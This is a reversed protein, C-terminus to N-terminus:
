ETCGPVEAWFNYRRDHGRDALFARLEYTEGVQLGHADLDLIHTRQYGNYSSFHGDFGGSDIVLQGDLFVWLDDGSGFRLVQGPGHTFTAVTEITKSGLREHRGPGFGFDPSVVPPVTHPSIGPGIIMATGQHTRRVRDSIDLPTNVGEVDRFWQSFRDATTFPLTDEAWILRPIGLAELTDAVAGEVVLRAAEREPDEAERAGFDDLLPGFDPFDDPFDRLRVRLNTCHAPEVPEIIPQTGDGGYFLLWPSAELTGTYPFARSQTASLSLLNEGSLDFAETLDSVWLEGTFGPCWSARDFYWTGWQNPTVGQDVRAACDWTEKQEWVHEFPQGNVTLRQETTCFEGCGGRGGGGHTTALNRLEVRTTGPPPTVRYVTTLEDYVSQQGMGRWGPMWAAATPHAEGEPARDHLRLQVRASWPTPDTNPAGIRFTVQGGQRLRPLIQPADLTWWGGTNYGSIAKFFKHRGAEDVCDTECLWLHVGQEGSCTEGEHPLETQGCFERFVVELHDFRAMEAAPPLDITVLGDLEGLTDTQEARAGDLLTLIKLDEGLEREERALRHALRAEYNYGRATYRAHALSPFWGNGGAIRMSGGRRLRQQQDIGAHDSGQLGGLIASLAPSGSAATVFHTRAEWHRSTEAPLGALIPTIVADRFSRIAAEADAPDPEVPFFVFVTNPDADLFLQARDDPIFDQPVPVLVYVNCGDWSESLVFSGSLTLLFLEGIPRNYELGQAEADFARPPFGLEGCQPEPEPEAADSADPQLEPRDPEPSADRITEPVDAADQADVAQDPPDSEASEDSACATLLLALLLHLRM